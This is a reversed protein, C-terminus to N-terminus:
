FRSSIYVYSELPLIGQYEPKARSSSGRSTVTTNRITKAIVVPKNLESYKKDLEAQSTIKNDASAIKTIQAETNIKNKYAKADEESKFYFTTNDKAIKLEYKNFTLTICNKVQKNLDTHIKTVRQQQSLTLFKDKDFKWSEIESKGEYETIKEEAMERIYTEFKSYDNQTVIATTDSILLNNENKLSGLSFFLTTSMLFIVLASIAAIVKQGIGRSPSNDTGIFIM